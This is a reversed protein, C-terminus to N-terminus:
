VYLVDFWCDASGITKTPGTSSNCVIIGQSFARGWIGYDVSFNSAGPVNVITVPVATDAPLKDRDFVLIFQATAKSNYGSFGFCTGAGSKAVRFAEYALSTSRVPLGGGGIEGAFREWWGALGAHEPLDSM